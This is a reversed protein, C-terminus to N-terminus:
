VRRAEQNAIFNLLPRRPLTPVRVGVRERLRSLPFPEREGPSQRQLEASTEV